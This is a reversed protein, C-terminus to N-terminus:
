LFIPLVEKNRGRRSLYVKKVQSGFVTPSGLAGVPYERGESAFKYLALGLFSGLGYDIANEGPVTGFRGGFIYGFVLVYLALM